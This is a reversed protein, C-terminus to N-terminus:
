KLKLLNRLASKGGETTFTGTREFNTSAVFALFYIGASGLFTGVTVGHSILRDKKEAERAEIRESSEVELKELEIKRDLLKTVGDVNAKYEDSGITERGLNELENRIEEDLVHKISM